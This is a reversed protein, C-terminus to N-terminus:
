NLGSHNERLSKRELTQYDNSKIFPIQKAIAFQELEQYLRHPQFAIFRIPLGKRRKITANKTTWGVRVFQIIRIQDPKINNGYITWKLFLIQYDISHDKIQVQFSIFLCLFTFTVIILQFALLINVQSLSLSITVIQLVLIFILIKFPSKAYCKM